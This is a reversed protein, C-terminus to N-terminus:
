LSIRPSFEQSVSRFIIKKCAKEAAPEEVSAGRIGIDFDWSNIPLWLYVPTAISVLPTSYVSVTGLHPRHLTTCIAIVVPLIMRTDPKATNIIIQAKVLGVRV